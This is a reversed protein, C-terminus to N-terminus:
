SYASSFCLVYWTWFFVLSDVNLFFFHICHFNPGDRYVLMNSSDFILRIRHIAINQVSYLSVSKIKKKKLSDYKPESCKRYNFSLSLCSMPVSELCDTLRRWIKGM